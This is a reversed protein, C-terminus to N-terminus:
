KYLAYILLMVFCVVSIVLMMLGAISFVIAM